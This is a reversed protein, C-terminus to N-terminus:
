LPLIMMSYAVSSSRSRMTLAIFGSDVAPDCSTKGPSPAMPHHGALSIAVLAQGEQGVNFAGDVLRHNVHFLMGTMRLWPAALAGLTTLARSSRKPM